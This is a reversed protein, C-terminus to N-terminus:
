VKYKKGFLDKFGTVTSEVFFVIDHLHSHPVFLSRNGSLHRWQYYPLLAPESTISPKNVLEKTALPMRPVINCQPVGSGQRLVM